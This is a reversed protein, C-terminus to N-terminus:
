GFGLFEILGMRPQTWTQPQIDHIHEILIQEFQKRPINEAGLSTLHDNDVQCDIMKVNQKQLYVSLAWFALKSADTEVSFMSEGFFVKGLAIGYLGGVMKEDLWIELSHAYGLNHLEIYATQMAENIWTEDSYARPRACAKIVGAFDQDVSVQFIKRKLSKKLSRSIHFHDPFLVMRPDPSWWLIPQGQSYWPFIGRRYAALLRQPQLDGGIALLGNPDKSAKDLPPFSDAIDFPQIHTLM